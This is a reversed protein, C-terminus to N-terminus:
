CLDNLMIFFLFDLNFVFVYIISIFEFKKSEFEQSQRITQRVTM